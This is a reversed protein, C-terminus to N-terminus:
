ILILVEFMNTNIRSLIPYKQAGIKVTPKAPSLTYKQLYTLQRPYRIHLSWKKCVGLKARLGASMGLTSDPSVGAERVVIWCM